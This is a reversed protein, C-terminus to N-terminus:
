RTNSSNIKWHKIARTTEPVRLCSPISLTISPWQRWRNTIKLVPLHQWVMPTWNAVVHTCNPVITKAWNQASHTSQSSSPVVILKLSSFILYILSSNFSLPEYFYFHIVFYLLGFTSMLLLFERYGILFIKRFIEKLVESFRVAFKKLRNFRFFLFCFDKM